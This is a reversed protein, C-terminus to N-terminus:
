EAGQPQGWRALMARADDPSLYTVRTVTLGGTGSTASAYQGSEVAHRAQDGTLAETLEWEEPGAINVVGPGTTGPRITEGCQPCEYRLLPQYDGQCDECWHDEDYVARLTPYHDPADYDCYHQHGAHDTYRWNRDLDSDYHVPTIERRVALSAGGPGRYSGTSM